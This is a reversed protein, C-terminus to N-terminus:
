SGCFGAIVERAIKYGMNFSRNLDECGQLLRYSMVKALGRNYFAEAYQPDILAAKTYASIAENYDTRDPEEEILADIDNMAQNYDGLMKSAFARNYLADGYNSDMELVTSYDETAGEMDGMEKRLLARTYILETIARDKEMAVNLDVLAERKKNKYSKVL